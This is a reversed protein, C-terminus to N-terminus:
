VKTNQLVPLYEQLVVRYPTTLQALSETVLMSLTGEGLVQEFRRFIVKLLRAYVEAASEPSSLINQDTFHNENLALNWSHANATFNVDRIIQSLLIRGTVQEFKGLLHNILSAFAHSLLYETWALTRPESSLLVASCYPERWAYIAMVSGTSHNLQNDALFLTYRPPGGRGPFLALGEATPWSVHALAPVPHAIWTAFLAELNGHEAAVSRQDGKQEIMIKLIRVAQPTLALLRARAEPSALSFSELWSTPELREVQDGNCYVNVLQGRAFLLIHRPSGVVDVDILGSQLDKRFAQLSASFQGAPVTIQEAYAPDLISYAM